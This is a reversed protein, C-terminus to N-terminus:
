CLAEVEARDVKPTGGPRSAVIAAYANAFHAAQALSKGEFMQTLLGATFADGAGVTDVVEVPIGPVNIEEDFTWISCGREGRTICMLALDLGCLISQRRRDADNRYLHEMRRVDEYHTRVEDLENENLKLIDALRISKKITEEDAFPPRLNLDCITSRNSRSSAVFRHLTQRTAHTRQALTGFCVTRASRILPYFEESWELFDWAVQDAIQYSPQGDTDVGVKVTGTSHMPDTQIYEDSLGLRRVEDRLQRGLEDDGVRSVIVAPHGLQQCHFAFNFPAGGARPGSPLLDWLLEGIGVIPGAM